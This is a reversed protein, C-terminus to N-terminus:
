KAGLVRVEAGACRLRQLVAPPLRALMRGVREGAILLAADSVDAHAKVTVGGARPLRLRKGFFGAEPPSIRSVQLRTRPPHLLPAPAAWSCGGLVLPVGVGVIWVAVGPSSGGGGGTSARAVVGTLQLAM